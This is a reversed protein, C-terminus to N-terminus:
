EKWTQLNRGLLSGLNQIDELYIDQLTKKLENSLIPKNNACIKEMLLSDISVVIKNVVRGLLTRPQTYPISEVYKYKFYFPNRISRFKYRVPSYIVAQPRKALGKPIYSDCIDLFDYMRKVAALSDGKIDDFLTILIQDKSFYDLYRTLHRYSFGVDIIESAAPYREDYKKNIIHRMGKEINVAPIYGYSIYHFYASVAREVPNRLVVLIKTDPIHRAIRAPCEPRALYMPQKIAIIRKGAGKELLRELEDLRDERYHLGEFFDIEGRPSFVEPHEGLCRHLFTSASKQSGIMCCNPLINIM